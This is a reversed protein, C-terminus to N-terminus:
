LLPPPPLETDRICLVVLFQGDSVKGTLGDTLQDKGELEPIDLFTKYM